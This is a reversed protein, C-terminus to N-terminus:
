RGCGFALVASLASILVIGVAVVRAMVNEIKHEEGHEIATVPSSGV